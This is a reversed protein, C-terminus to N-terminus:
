WVQLLTNCYLNTAHRCRWLQTFRDKFLWLRAIPSILPASIPIKDPGAMLYKSKKLRKDIKQRLWSEIELMTATHCRCLKDRKHIMVTPSKVKEWGMYRIMVCYSKEGVKHSFKWWHWLTKRYIEGLFCWRAHKLETYIKPLTWHWVANWTLSVHIGTISTYVRSPAWSTIKLLCHTKLRLKSECTNPIIKQCKTIKM